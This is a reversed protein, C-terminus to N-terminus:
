RSPSVQINEALKLRELEVLGIDMEREHGRLEGDVWNALDDGSLISQEPPLGRSYSLIPGPARELVCRELEQYPKYQYVAHDM